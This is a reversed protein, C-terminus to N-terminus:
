SKIERLTPTPRREWSRYKLITPSSRSGAERYFIDLGDIRATRFAVKLAESGTETKKSTVETSM